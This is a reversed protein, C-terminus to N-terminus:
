RTHDPRRMVTVLYDQLDVFAQSKPKHLQPLESFCKEPTDYLEFWGLSKEVDSLLSKLFRRTAFSFLPLRVYASKRGAITAANGFAFTQFPFGKALSSGHAPMVVMFRVNVEWSPAEAIELDIVDTKWPFIRRWERKDTRKFGHKGLLGDLGSTLLELARRQTEWKVRPKKHM